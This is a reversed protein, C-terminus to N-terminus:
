VVSKRDRHYEVYAGERRGEAWTEEVHLGGDDYWARAPGHRRPNGYADPRGLCWAEFGDPPAGGKLATGPPCDIPAAALLLAALPVILDM